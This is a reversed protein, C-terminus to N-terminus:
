TNTYSEILERIVGYYSAGVKKASFREAARMALVKRDFAGIESIFYSLGQIWEQVTNEKILIGNTQDVFETIGGVKSAVVPAGCCLAEACAVSFTEYASPHLFAVCNRMIDAITLADLSGLLRIAHNRDHRRVWEEME